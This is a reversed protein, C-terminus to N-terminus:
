HRDHAQGSIILIDDVYLLVIVHAGNKMCKVLVCEDSKCKRFGHKMLHGTLEKYWLKASQILGYMAKDVKVYLKGDERVNEKFHPMWNVCMNTMGKDLYMYVKAGEDIPACLFAGGLM